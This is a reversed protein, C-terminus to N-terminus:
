RQGSPLFSSLHQFFNARYTDGLPVYGQTGDVLLHPGDVARVKGLAVVYSKHVRLFQTAPLQAEIEKFTLLTQIEETLTQILVYNKCGEVYIIEEFAVRVLKGKNGTKVFWYDVKDVTSTTLPNSIAIAKRSAQLFREFTFPKLLYDLVNLDYGLVAFESYATTLIIHIRKDLLRLLELGSLQPMQVDLFLVDVPHTQLMGLAEVPNTTSGMLHLFPVRAIFVKLLEIASPEDDVVLCTLTLM